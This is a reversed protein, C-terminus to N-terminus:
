KKLKIEFVEVEDYDPNSKKLLLTKRKYASEMDMFLEPKQILGRWVFILIWYKKM